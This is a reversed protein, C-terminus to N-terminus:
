DLDLWAEMHATGVEVAMEAAVGADVATAAAGMAGAKGEQRPAGAATVRAAVTGAAETAAARGESCLAAAAAVRAAAM